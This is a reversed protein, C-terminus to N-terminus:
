FFTFFLENKLEKGFMLISQGQFYAKQFLMGYYVLM